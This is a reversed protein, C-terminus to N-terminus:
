RAFVVCLGGIFTKRHHGLTSLQDFTAHRHHNARACNAGFVAHHEGFRGLCRARVGQQDGSRGIGVRGPTFDRQMRQRHIARCIQRHHQVVIGAPHRDVHIFVTKIPKPARGIKARDLFARAVDVAHVQQGAVVRM